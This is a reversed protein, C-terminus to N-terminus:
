SRLKPVQADVGASRLTQAYDELWVMAARRPDEGEPHSYVVWTFPGLYVTDDKAGRRWVGAVQALAPSRDLISQVEALAQERTLGGPGIMPRVLLDEPVMELQMFNWAMHPHDERTIDSRAGRGPRPYDRVAAADWVPTRGVHRAAPPATGRAVYSHWTRLKVGWSDACQAATWEEDQM